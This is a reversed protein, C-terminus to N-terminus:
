ERNYVWDIWRRQRAKDCAERMSISRPYERKLAEETPYYCSEEDKDWCEANDTYFFLGGVFWGANSQQRVNQIIRNPSM